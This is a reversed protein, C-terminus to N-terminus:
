HNTRNKNKYYQIEKSTLYKYLTSYSPLNNTRAYQNWYERSVFFDIHDNLIQEIDSKTYGSKRIKSAPPLNLAERTSNWSGFENIYTQPSPLHQESAYKEWRRKTSFHNINKKGIHILEDRTYKERQRIKPIELLQKTKNWSGFRKILTISRPLNHTNAYKDWARVTTMAQTHPKLLQIIEEDGLKM